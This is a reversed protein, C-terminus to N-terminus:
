DVSAGAAATLRLERKPVEVEDASGRGTVAAAAARELEAVPGRLHSIRAAIGGWEREPRRRLEIAAGEPPQM